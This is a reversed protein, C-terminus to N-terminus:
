VRQGKAFNVVGQGVEVVEGAIDTGVVTPYKDVWNGSQQIKWDVPNLATAYVKVLLQGVGPTPIPRQGVIFQGQKAELLLAKQMLSPHLKRIGCLAQVPAYIDM